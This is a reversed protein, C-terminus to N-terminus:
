LRGIDLLNLAFIWFGPAGLRATRRTTRYGAFCACPFAWQAPGAAILHHATWRLTTDKKRFPARCSPFSSGHCWSVVRGAEAECVTPGVRKPRDHRNRCYKSDRGALPRPGRGRRGFRLDGCAHADIRGAVLRVVAALQPAPLRDRPSAAVDEEVAVRRVEDWTIRIMELVDKNVVA